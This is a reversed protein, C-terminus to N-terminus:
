IAAPLKIRHAPTGLCSSINIVYISSFSSKGRFPRFVNLGMQNLGKKKKKKKKEEARKHYM